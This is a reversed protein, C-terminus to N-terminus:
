SGVVKVRICVMHAIHVRATLRVCFDVQIAAPRRGFVEWVLLIRSQDSHKAPESEHHLRGTFDLLRNNLVSLTYHKLALICEFSALYQTLFPSLCLRDSLGAALVSMHLSQEYKVSSTEM